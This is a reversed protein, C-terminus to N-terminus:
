REERTNDSRNLEIVEQVRNNITNAAFRIGGMEERVQKEEKGPYTAAIKDFDIDPAELGYHKTLIYAALEAQPLVDERHLDGGDTMIEVAHERAAAFVKAEPELGPRVRIVQEVPDFLADMGDPLEAEIAPPYALMFANPVRRYSPGKIDMDRIGTQSVDFVKVVKSGIGMTGDERQYRYSGLTKIGTEGKLIPVNDATWDDSSRVWTAEPMQEMVLLVNSVSQKFLKAQMDAYEKLKSGSLLKQTADSLLDFMEAKEQRKLESYEEADMRNMDNRDAM